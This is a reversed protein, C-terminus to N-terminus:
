SRAQRGCSLTVAVHYALLVDSCLRNVRSGSEIIHRGWVKSGLLHVTCQLVLLFGFAHELLNLPVIVGREPKTLRCLVSM